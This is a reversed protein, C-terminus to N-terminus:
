RESFSKSYQCVLTSEFIGLANEYFEKTLGDNGPSKNNSMDNLAKSLVNESIPDECTQSLERTLVAITIQDLYATINENQIQLKETYLTKKFQHLQHNIQTKDTIKNQGCFLNQVQNQM